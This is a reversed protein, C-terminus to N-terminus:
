LAVDADRHPGGAPYVAGSRSARGRPSSGRSSGGESSGSSNGQRRTNQNETNNVKPLVDDQSIANETKSEAADKAVLTEKSGSSRFFIVFYIM